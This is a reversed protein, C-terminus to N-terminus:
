GHVKRLIQHIKHGRGEDELPCSEHKQGGPASGEVGKPAQKIKITAITTSADSHVSLLM